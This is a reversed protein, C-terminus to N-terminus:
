LKNYAPLTLFEDFKENVWHSSAGFPTENNIAWFTSHRGKNYPLYSPHFNIGGYQSIKLIKIPVKFDFYSFLIDAKFKQIKKIIKPNKLNSTLVKFKKKLREIIKKKCNSSLILYKVEFKKIKIIYNLLYISLNSGDLFLITEIKM